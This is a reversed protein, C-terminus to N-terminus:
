RRELTQPGATAVLKPCGWALLQQARGAVPEELAGALYKGALQICRGWATDAYECDREYLERAAAKDARHEELGALVYCTDPRVDCSRRAMETRSLDDGSPFECESAVGHRCGDSSLTVLRDAADHGEPVDDTLKSYLGYCAAPFGARCERRLDDVNCGDRNHQCAESRSAAGPASPFRALQDDKPLARCSMGDGAVCNALVTRFATGPADLPRLQAEIICAHKDGDKCAEAFLNATASRDPAVYPKFPRAYDLPLDTRLAEDARRRAADRAHPDASAIAPAAAPRPASQPPASPASQPPASPAAQPPASPASQPPASPATACAAVCVFALSRM